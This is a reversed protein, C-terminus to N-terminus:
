NGYGIRRNCTMGYHKNVTEIFFSRWSPAMVANMIPTGNDEEHNFNM